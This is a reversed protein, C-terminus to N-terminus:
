GSAAEIIRYGFRELIERVLTRVKEEDEVVLITGTGRVAPSLKTTAPPESTPEDIRPLYIKFTTGQDPESYVWISGGSQQVIGYVTSLGLGSGRGQPKTTFFPEFIRALVSPEMGSGTDSVALRVYAGPKVNAHRRAYPEDLEVDLTELILKGGRPM